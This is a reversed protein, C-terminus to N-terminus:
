PLRFESKKGVICLQTVGLAVDLRDVPATVSIGNSYEVRIFIEGGVDRAAKNIKDALDKLQM